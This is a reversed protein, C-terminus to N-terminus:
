EWRSVEEKEEKRGEGDRVRLIERKKRMTKREVGSLIYNTKKRGVM